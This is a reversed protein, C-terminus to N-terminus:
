PGELVLAAAIALLALTLAFGFAVCALGLLVTTM